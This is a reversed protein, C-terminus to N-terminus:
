RVWYPKRARPCAAATVLPVRSGPSLTYDLVFHVKDVLGVTKLEQTPPTICVNRIPEAGTKLVYISGMISSTSCPNSAVTFKLILRQRDLPGSHTRDRDFDFDDQLLLQGSELLIPNWNNMISRRTFTPQCGTFSLRALLGNTQMQIKQVTKDRSFPKATSAIGTRVQM